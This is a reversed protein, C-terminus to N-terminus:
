GRDGEKSSDHPEPTVPMRRFRAVERRLAWYYIPRRLGLWRANVYWDWILYRTLLRVDEARMHHRWRHPTGFWLEFGDNNASIVEADETGRPVERGDRYYLTRSEPPNGDNGLTTSGVANMIRSYLKSM